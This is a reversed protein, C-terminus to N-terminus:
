GKYTKVFKTMASKTMPTEALPTEADGADFVLYHKDKLFVKLDKEAAGDVDETVDRGFKDADLEDEGEDQEDDSELDADTTDEPDSLDSALSEDRKGPATPRIPEDAPPPKVKYKKVEDDVCVFKNPHLLVLNKKSKVQEGPQLKVDVANGDEDEGRLSHVGAGPLLEYVKASAM